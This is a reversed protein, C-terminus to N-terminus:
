ETLGDARALERLREKALQFRKRLRSAERELEGDTATLGDDSLVMAIETWTLQRSIRLVLIQQDEAPLLRRLEQMRSKVETKLYADTRTQTHAALDSLGEPLAVHRSRRRKEAKAHRRGANRALTYAWGRATCRWEFRPLAVWLDSTFLSFAEAAQARDAMFAVLFGQLEPGYDRILRTAAGEYDERNWAERIAAEVETQEHVRTM